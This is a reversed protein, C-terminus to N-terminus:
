WRLDSVIDQSEEAPPDEVGVVARQEVLGSGVCCYHGLGDVGQDEVEELPDAGVGAGVGLHELRPPRRTRAKGHPLVGVISAEDRTM